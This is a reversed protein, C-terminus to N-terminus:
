QDGGPRKLGMADHLIWLGEMGKGGDPNEESAPTPKRGYEISLAAMLGREDDLVVYRDIDGQEVDIRAHGDHRHEGLRAEARAAGELTLDDMRKQVTAHQAILREIKQGRVRRYVQAM